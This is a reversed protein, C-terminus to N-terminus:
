VHEILTHPWFLLYYIANVCYGCFACLRHEICASLNLVPGQSRWINTNSPLSTTLQGKVQTQTPPTHTHPPLPPGVQLDLLLAQAEAAASRVPKANDRKARGLAATCAEVQAAAMAVGAAVAVGKLAKVAALRM